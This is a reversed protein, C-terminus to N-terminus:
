SIHQQHFDVKVPEVTLLWVSALLVFVTLQELETLSVDLSAACQSVIERKQFMFVSMPIQLMQFLSSTAEFM